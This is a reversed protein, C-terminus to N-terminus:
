NLTELRRIGGGLKEGSQWMAKAYGMWQRRAPIFRDNEGSESKVYRVGTM